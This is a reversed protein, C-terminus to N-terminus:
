KKRVTKFAVTNFGMKLSGMVMLLLALSILGWQSLTPIQVTCDPVTYDLVFTCTSDDDSTFTVLINTGAAVGMETLMMGDMGATVGGIAVDTTWSSGNSMVVFTVDATDDSPDEMTGGDNCVFASVGVSFNCEGPIICSGDDCNAAADYNTATADTCGLVPTEENICACNAPDWTGGFPGATCDANCTMDYPNCTGDDVTATSDFNDACPDTCGMVAGACTAGTVCVAPDVDYCFPSLDVTLIGAPLGLAAGLDVTGGAGNAILIEITALDVTAGGALAQIAAYVAALTNGNPPLGLSLGLAAIAAEIEGIIVDLETQIHTIATVCVTAGDALGDVAAQADALAGVSIIGDPTGTVTGAADDIVLYETIEGANASGDAVDTVTCPSGFTGDGCDTCDISMTPADAACPEMMGCAASSVTVCYVESKDVCFDIGLAVLDIEQDGILGTPDTITIIQNDIFNCIQTENFGFFGNLLDLFPAFEVPTVGPCYGVDGLCTLGVFPVDVCLTNCLLNDVFATVADLTGQTYALQYICATEGDALSSLDLTTAGAASVTVINGAADVAIYNTSVMADVVGDGDSDYGGTAPDFIISADVPEAADNCVETPADAVAEGAMADCLAGTAMCVGPVTTVEATPSATTMDEDCLCRVTVTIATTQDYAPVTTVWTTGGDTSYEATAGTPCTIADVVGGELTMGDAGCVSETVTPAAPAAMLDAEIACAGCSIVTLCHTNTSFDCCFGDPELGPITTLDVVLDPLLGGPLASLPITIEQNICWLAIDDSTFNFGFGELAGNLGNLVGSLDLTGFPGLFDSACPGTIPVCISSLQADLFATVIDLTEQTYAVSVVCAQDGVMLGTLDLVATSSVTIIDNAMTPDVIVYNQNLSPTGAVEPDAFVATVDVAGLDTDCVDATAPTPEGADVTCGGAPTCVGPVTTVEATPSATTMDEDCLCRVTVTIATTQDYAPVTTVWTAGGDTSYEATSGTPCTIPDVVGGELTVGDAACASETVTPAAPAAILDAEIACAAPAACPSGDAACDVVEMCYDASNAGAATDGGTLLGCVPVNTIGLAGLQDLQPLLTVVDGVSVSGGGGLSGALTFLDALSAPVPIPCVPAGALSEAASCASPNNNIETVLDMIQMLDYCFGTMCVNDGVALGLATPDIVGDVSVGLVAAGGDGTAVDGPNTIVFDYNPSGCDGAFDVAGASDAPSSCEPFAGDACVVQGTYAPNTAAAPETAPNSPGAFGCENYTQAVTINGLFCCTVFLSFLLILKRM